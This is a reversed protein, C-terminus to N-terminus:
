IDSRMVIPLVSRRKAVIATCYGCSVTGGCSSSGKAENNYLHFLLDRRDAVRSRTQDDDKHGTIRSEGSGTFLRNAIVLLITIGILFANIIVVPLFSM